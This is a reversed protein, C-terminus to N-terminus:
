LSDVFLFRRGDGGLEFRASGRGGVVWMRWRLKNRLRVVAGCVLDAQCREPGGGGYRLGRLAVDSTGAERGSRRPFSVRGM